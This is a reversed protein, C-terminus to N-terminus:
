HRRSGVQTNQVLEERKRFVLFYVAVGVGTGVVVVCAIVIGAIAGASLTPPPPSSGGSPPPPPNLPPPHPPPNIPALLPPPSPVAVLGMRANLPQSPGLKPNVKWNLAITVWPFPTEDGFEYTYYLTNEFGMNHFLPACAALGIIAVPPQGDMLYTYMYMTYTGDTATYVPFSPASNAYDPDLAPLPCHQGAARQAETCVNGFNDYYGCSGSDSLSTSLTWVNTCPAPIGNGPTSTLDCGTINLFFDSAHACTLSIFFLLWKMEKASNCILGSYLTTTM